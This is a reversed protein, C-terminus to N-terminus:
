DVEQFFSQNHSILKIWNGNSDGRSAFSGPNMNYYTIEITMRVLSFNEGLTFAM